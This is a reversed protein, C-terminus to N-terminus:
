RRRRGEAMVENYLERINNVGEFTANQIIVNGGMGGTGDAVLGRQADPYVMMGGRPVVTEQHHVYGAPRGAPGSGTFGGMAYGPFPDPIDVTLDAGPIVTRGAIKQEGIRFGVSNPIIENIAHKIIGEIVGMQGTVGEGIADMWSSGMSSFGTDISAVDLLGIADAFPVIVEDMLWNTASEVSLGSFFDSVDMSATGIWDGIKGISEGIWDIAIRVDNAADEMLNFGSVSEPSFLGDLVFDLGVLDFISTIAVVIGPTHELVSKKIRQGFDLKADLEPPVPDNETDAWIIEPTLTVQAQGSATVEYVGPQLQRATEWTLGTAAFLDEIPIGTERSIDWLTDNAGVTIKTIKAEAEAEIPGIMIPGKDQKGALSLDSFIDGVIGTVEDFLDVVPGLNDETWTRIGAIDNQYAVVMGAVAGGFAGAALAAATFPATILAIVAVLGAVAVTVVGVTVAMDLLEPNADSLMDFFGGIAEAGKILPPLLRNGLEIGVATVQSKLKNWQANFSQLQMRRAALAAGELGETYSTFFGGFEENTLAVSAQLAETSGLMEAMAQNSGGSAENLKRLTGVLGLQELAANGSAFGISQLSSMMDKNPKLIAVVAAKLQTAALSATQGKSTMFAMSAGVEDFSVGASATLGLIPSMSSVFEDMTGVGKAVTRAYVDTVYNARTAAFDYANMANVVGESTIALQAMGAESLNVSAQLIDMRKSADGVASSINYFAEGVANPGGPGAFTRAVDLVQASMAALEDNTALTVAQVNRMSADWTRAVNVAAVGVGTVAAGAIMAGRAMTRGMNGMTQSVRRSAADFQSTDARYVAKLSAVETAM